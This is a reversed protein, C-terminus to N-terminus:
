QVTVFDLATFFPISVVSSSVSVGLRNSGAQLDGPVDAATNPRPTRRVGTARRHRGSQTPIREGRGPLVADLREPLESQAPVEYPISDRICM